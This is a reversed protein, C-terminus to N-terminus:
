SLQTIWQRLPTDNKKKLYFVFFEDKTMMSRTGKQKLEGRIYNLIMEADHMNPQIVNKVM